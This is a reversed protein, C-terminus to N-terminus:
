SCLSSFHTEYTHTHTIDCKLHPKDRKREKKREREIWHSHSTKDINCIFSFLPGVRSHNWDWIFLRDGSWLPMSNAVRAVVCGLWSPNPICWDVNWDSYEFFSCFRTTRNQYTTWSCEWMERLWLVYILWGYLTNEWETLLLTCFTVCLFLFRISGCYTSDHGNVKTSDWFVVLLFWLWLRCYYVGCYRVNLIVSWVAFILAFIERKMEEYNVFPFLDYDLLCILFESSSHRALYFPLCMFPLVVWWFVM